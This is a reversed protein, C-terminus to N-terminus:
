SGSRIDEDLQKEAEEIEHLQDLCDSCFVRDQDPIPVSQM